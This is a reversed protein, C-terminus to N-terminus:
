DKLAAMLQDMKMWDALCHEMQNELHFNLVMEAVMMTEMQTESVMLGVMTLEMKTWAVLCSDMQIELHFNSAMGGVMMLVM